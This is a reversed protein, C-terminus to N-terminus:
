ETLTVHSPQTIRRFSRQPGMGPEDYDPDDAFLEDCIQQVCKKFSDAEFVIEDRRWDVRYVGYEHDKPNRVDQPDWGLWDQGNAL